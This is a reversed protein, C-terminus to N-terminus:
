STDTLNKPFDNVLEIKNYYLLLTYISNLTRIKISLYVLQLKENVSAQKSFDNFQVDSHSGNPVLWRM